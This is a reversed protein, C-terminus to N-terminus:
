VQKHQRIDEMIEQVLRRAFPKSLQYDYLDKHGELAEPDNTISIIISNYKPDGKLEQAIELGLKGPMHHDLFIVDIPTQESLAKQVTELTENGGYAFLVDEVGEENNILSNLIKVNMQVDDAILVRLGKKDNKDRNFEKLQKKIKSVNDMNPNLYAFISDVNHQGERLLKEIEPNHTHRLLNDFTSKVSKLSTYVEITEIDFPHKQMEMDHQYHEQLFIDKFSNMLHKITNLADKSFPESEKSLRIIGEVREELIVPIIIQAMIEIKFPNDLALNYRTNTQINQTLYAKQNVYSNGILSDDGLYKTEIKTGKIKDYFIGEEPNFFLIELSDAETYTRLLSYTKQLDEVAESLRTKIEMLPVESM